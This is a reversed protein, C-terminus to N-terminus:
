RASKRQSISLADVYNLIAPVDGDQVPAKFTKQMKEVERVWTDHTLPPQSLVMSPSHCARCNNDMAASGPGAPFQEGSSDVQAYAAIDDGDAARQRMDWVIRPIQKAGDECSYGREESRAPALWGRCAVLGGIWVSGIRDDRDAVTRQREVVDERRSSATIEAHTEDTGVEFRPAEGQDRVNWFEGIGGIENM